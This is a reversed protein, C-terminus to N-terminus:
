ETAEEVLQIKDISEPAFGSAVLAPKILDNLASDLTVTPQPLNLGSAEVTIDHKFKKLEESSM